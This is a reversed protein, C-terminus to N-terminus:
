APDTATEGQDSRIYEYALSALCAGASPGLVYIWLSSIAEGGAFLAPGLSRAPNMSCGTLPGAFLGCLVVVSGIAFGPVWPAVRKDTATSIITFMLFFTIALEIGAAHGAGLKPVTAGFHAAAAKDAFLLLHLASGLVAGTFQALWYPVVDKAPFRKVLAFGLTVAPNYHACSIHGMAYIMAAVTLGFTVNIALHAADGSLTAMSGCGLFVIAFTGIAEAICRKSLSAIV